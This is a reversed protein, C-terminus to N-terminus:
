MRFVVKSFEFRKHHMDEIVNKAESIHFNHTIVAGANIKKQSMHELSQNWEKTSILSSWSGIISLERRLIMSYIDKNLVLDNTPNGLLVVKGRKACSMIAEKQLEASGSCEFIIDAGYGGTMDKVAQSIEQDRSDIFEHIGAKRAIKFRQDHRDVGIVHQSGFIKAWQATFFGIPGLGMIMINEGRGSVKNAHLGVSSPETMSAEDFSINDPVKVLNEAPCKVYEAHGGNSRSGLFDYKECLNFDGMTCPRCIKCPILPYVAVRDEIEVSSVNRGKKVVVGCFEHGPVIPYHYFGTKMSRVVDTSCIGSRETLLIVDDDGCEPFPIKKCEINGVNEVVVADMSSM